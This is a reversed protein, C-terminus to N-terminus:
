KTGLAKVKSEEGRCSSKTADTAAVAVVDVAAGVLPFSQATAAVVKIQGSKGLGPGSLAPAPALPPLTKEGNALLLAADPLLFLPPLFLLFRFPSFM